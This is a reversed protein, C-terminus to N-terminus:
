TQSLGLERYRLKMFESFVMSNYRPFRAIDNCCKALMKLPTTPILNGFFPISYRPSRDSEAPNVVRHTTSPIMGNTMIALTDGANIIAANDPAVVDLWEDDHTKVQLGPGTPRPIITMICLDEHAAARIAGPPVIAPDVPPYHIIRMVGNGFGLMNALINEEKSSDYGLYIATAQLLVRMCQEMEDYLSLVAHKFDPLEPWVRELHSPGTTQFFEKLDMVDTYKAHETGYGVHGEPTRTALKFEENQHFFTAAAAYANDITEAKIGVNNAAVFGLQQFSEGFQMAMSLREKPNGYLFTEMDIWPITRKDNCPLKQANM